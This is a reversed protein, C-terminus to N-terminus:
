QAPTVTPTVNKLSLILPKITGTWYGKWATIDAQVNTRDTKVNQIATNFAGNSHSCQGSNAMNDATQLDTSLTAADTKVKAGYTNQLTNLDTAIETAQTPNNVMVKALGVTVFTQIRDHVQDVKPGVIQIKTILNNLRDTITRCGAGYTLGTPTPSTQAFAPMASGLLLSGALAFNVIKTKTSNTM